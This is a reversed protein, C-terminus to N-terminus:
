KFREKLWEFDNFLKLAQLNEFNVLAYNKGERAGQICYKGFPQDLGIECWIDLRRLSEDNDRKKLVNLTLKVCERFASRWTSFEDVNFHTINSVQEIIKIKSSIGLTMDMTNTPMTQTLKKPLLKVAGYGYELQNVPNRSHFIHVIDLDYEPVEYDFNFSELIRADGDVAWFMKTLAKNSATIHANHIGKIGNIRKSLPFRKTILSWNEDSNPENNSIFIIDYM